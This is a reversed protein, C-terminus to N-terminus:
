RPKSPNVADPSADALQKDLEEQKLISDPTVL